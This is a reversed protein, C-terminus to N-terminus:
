MYKGEEELQKPVVLDELEVPLTDGADKVDLHHVGRGTVIQIMLLSLLLWTTM